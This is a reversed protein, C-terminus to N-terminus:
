FVELKAINWISDHIVIEYFSNANLTPDEFNGHCVSPWGNGKALTIKGGSTQIMIDLMVDEGEEAEPKDITLTIATSNQATVKCKVSRCNFALTSNADVTREIEMATTESNGRTLPVDNFATIASTTTTYECLLVYEYEDGKAINGSKRTTSHQVDVTGTNRIRLYVYHSGATLQAATTMADMQVLNGHSAVWGAGINITTSSYSCVVGEIKGSIDYLWNFHKIDAIPTVTQGAKRYLTIAM